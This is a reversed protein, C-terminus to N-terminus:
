SERWGVGLRRSGPGYRANPIGMYQPPGEWPAGIIINEDNPSEVVVANDNRCEWGCYDLIYQIRINHVGPDCRPDVRFPPPGEHTWTSPDNIRTLEDRLHNCFTSALLTPNHGCVPIQLIYLCM